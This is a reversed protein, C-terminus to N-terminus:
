PEPRRFEALTGEIWRQVANNLAEPALGTGGIPPGIRVRIVGPHKLWSRRRWFDGANHAIPVVPRQIEQALLAGSLGYRRTQGPALRTGEPFINLTRGQRIQVAGKQLIQGVARRRDSRNIPIPKLMALAWGFVPVWYLERKLVWTPYPSLTFSLFTEWASEHRWFLLGGGEPLHEVGELVYGLGCIRELMQLQLRCGLHGIRFRLRELMPLGLTCLVLAACLFVSVPMLLNFLSSRLILGLRKSLTRYSARPVSAHSGPRPPAGKM